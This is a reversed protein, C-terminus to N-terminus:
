KELTYDTTSECKVEFKGKELGLSDKRIMLKACIPSFNKYLGIFEYEVIQILFSSFREIGLCQLWHRVNRNFLTM